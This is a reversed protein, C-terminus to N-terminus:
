ANFGRPQGIVCYSSRVAVGTSSVAIPVYLSRMYLAKTIPPDVVPLTVMPPTAGCDGGFVARVEMVSCSVLPVGVRTM